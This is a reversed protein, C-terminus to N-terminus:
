SARGPGGAPGLYAMLRGATTAAIWLLVVALALLRDRGAAPVGTDAMLRGRMRRVGAIALAISTLKVTFVPNALKASADALLLIAGSLATAAFAIWIAPFLRLLARPAADTLGLMRLAVVTSLGAVAGLGLTHTFLISPYGFLSGGERIWVLFASQELGALLGM